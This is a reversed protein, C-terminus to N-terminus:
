PADIDMLADSKYIDGIIVIKENLVQEGMQQVMAEVLTAQRTKLQKMAKPQCLPLGVCSKYLKWVFETNYLAEDQWSVKTDYPMGLKVSAYVRMTAVVEDSLLSTDSVRKITYRGNESQKLFHALDCKQLSSSTYYVVPKDNEIFIVGMCNYNTKGLPMVVNSPQTPLTIFVVDGDHLVQSKLANSCLVGILIFLYFFTSTKM